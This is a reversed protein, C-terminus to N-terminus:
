KKKSAEKKTIQSKNTKRIPRKCENNTHGIISVKSTAKNAQMADLIYM